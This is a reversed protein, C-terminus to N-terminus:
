PVYSSAEAEERRKEAEPDFGPGDIIKLDDDWVWEKKKLNREVLGKSEEAAKEADKKALIAKIEKSMGRKKLSDLATKYGRMVGWTYGLIPKGDIYKHCHRVMKPLPPMNLKAQGDCCLLCIMLLILGPMQVSKNILKVKM